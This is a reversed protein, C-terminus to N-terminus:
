EKMGTCIIEIVSYIDKFLIGHELLESFIENRHFVNCIVIKKIEGTKYKKTLEEMGEVDHGKFGDRYRDANKDFIQFSYNHGPDNVIDEIVLGTIETVSYLCISRSFGRKEFFDCFGRNRLKLELYDMIIPYQYIYREQEDVYGALKKNKLVPPFRDEMEGNNM